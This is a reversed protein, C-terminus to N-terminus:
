VSYHKETNNNSSLKAATWKKGRSTMGTKGELLFRSLLFLCLQDGLHLFSHVVTQSHELGGKFMQVDFCSVRVRLILLDCVSHLGNQLGLRARLWSASIRCNSCFHMDYHVNRSTRKFRRTQKQEHTEPDKRPCAAEKDSRNGPRWPVLPHQVRHGRLHRYYVWLQKKLCEYVITSIKRM